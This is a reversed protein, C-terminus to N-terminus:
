ILESQPPEPLSNRTKPAGPKVPSATQNLSSAAKWNKCSSLDSEWERGHDAELNLVHYFSSTSLSPRAPSLDILAPDSNSDVFRYIQSSV